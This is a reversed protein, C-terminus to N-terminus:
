KSNISRFLSIDVNIIFEGNGGRERGKKKREQREERDRGKEEAKKWMHIDIELVM